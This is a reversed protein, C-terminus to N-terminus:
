SRRLVAGLAPQLAPDGSARLTLSSDNHQRLTLDLMPASALLHWWHVLLAAGVLGLLLLLRTRASRLAQAAASPPDAASTDIWASDPLDALAGHRSPPQLNRAGTAM